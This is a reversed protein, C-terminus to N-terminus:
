FINRLIWWLIIAAAISLITPQAYMINHIKKPSWAYLAAIPVAFFLAPNFSWAEYLRGNFIAHIARQTGCGPCKLGTLIHFPCKPAPWLTPDFFAIYAIVALAIFIAMVTMVKISM